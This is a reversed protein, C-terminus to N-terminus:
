FRRSAASETLCYRIGRQGVMFRGAPYQLATDHMQDCFGLVRAPLPSASSGSDPEIRCRWPMGRVVRTAHTAAKTSTAVVAAPANASRTSRGTGGPYAVVEPAMAVREHGLPETHAQDAVCHWLAKCRTHQRLSAPDVATTNRHRQQWHPNVTSCSGSASHAKPCTSKGWVPVLLM